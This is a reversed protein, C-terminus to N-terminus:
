FIGKTQSFHLTVTIWELDALNTLTGSEYMNVRISRSAYPELVAVYNKVNGPTTAHFQCHGGIFSGPDQSQSWTITFRGADVYTVTLGEGGAAETVANTGGLVRVVHVRHELVNSLPEYQAQSM